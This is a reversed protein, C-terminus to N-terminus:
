EAGAGRTLSSDGGPECPGIGIPQCGISARGNGPASRSRSRSAIPRQAVASGHGRNKAGERRALALPSPGIVSSVRATEGRRGKLAARRARRSPGGPQPRRRRAPGPGVARSRLGIGGTAFEIGSIGIKDIDADSSRSFVASGIVESSAVYGMFYINGPQFNDRVATDSGLLNGGVDYVSLTLM